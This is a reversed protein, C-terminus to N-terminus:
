IPWPHHFTDGKCLLWHALRIGAIEDMTLHRTTENSVKGTERIEEHARVFWKSTKMGQKETAM